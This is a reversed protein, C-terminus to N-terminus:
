PTRGKEHLKFGWSSPALPRRPAQNEKRSGDLKRQTLPSDSHLSFTSSIGLCENWRSELHRKHARGAFTTNGM